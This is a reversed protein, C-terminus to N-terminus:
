HQLPPLGIWLTRRERRKRILSLAATAWIATLVVSHHTVGPCSPGKSLSSVFGALSLLSTAAAVLIVLAPERPSTWMAILTVPVVYLLEVAPGAGNVWKLTFVLAAATLAAVVAM